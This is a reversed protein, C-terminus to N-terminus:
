ADPVGRIIQQSGWTPTTHYKKLEKIEAVAKQYQVPMEQEQLDYNATANYAEIICKQLIYYDKLETTALTVNYEEIINDIYDEARELVDDFLEETFGLATTDIYDGFISWTIAM